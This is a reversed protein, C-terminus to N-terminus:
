PCVHRWGCVPLVYCIANDESSSRAVAVRVSFKM